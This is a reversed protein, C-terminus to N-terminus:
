KCCSFLDLCSSKPVPKYKEVDWLYTHIQCFKSGRLIVLLVNDESFKVNVPKVDIGYEYTNKVPYGLCEGERSFAQVRYNNADAVFINDYKDVCVGMPYFLEGPKSGHKGFALIFDGDLKHIKIRNNGTDAVVIEEKNNVTVHYPSMFHHIGRGRSGFRVSPKRKDTLVHVCNQRLGTVVAYNSKSVGVGFPNEQSYFSGHLALLRGDTTYERLIANGSRSVAVLLTGGHTIEIDRVSCECQFSGRYIGASSFISVKNLTSDSVFIDDSFPSVTIGSM